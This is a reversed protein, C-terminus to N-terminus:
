EKNPWCIPNLPSVALEGPKTQPIFRKWDGSVMTPNKVVKSGDAFYTNALVMRNTSTLNSSASHFCLNHHFSVEGMEFPGSEISIKNKAFIRSVERDYSTDFKNFNVKEVLKYADLPTAFSLPGMNEPIPQSPIWATIVENTDLPFHHTDYHWPTRGCAPLKVLINDHYLRISSVNLLETATKSIRKAFVFEKILKNQLWILDMSLFNSKEIRSPTFNKSIIRTLESNLTFIANESFMNKVKLFGNKWFFDKQVKSIPYTTNLEDKLEDLSLLKGSLSEHHVQGNNKENINNHALTVYWDWWAQNDQEWAQNVDSESANKGKLKVIPINVSESM